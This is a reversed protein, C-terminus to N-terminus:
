GRAIAAHVRFIRISSGVFDPLLRIAWANRRRTNAFTRAPAGCIKRRHFRNELLNLPRDSGFAIGYLKKRLRVLRYILGQLAADYLNSCAHM